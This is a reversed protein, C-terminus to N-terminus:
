CPIDPLRFPDGDSDVGENQELNVAQIQYLPDSDIQNRFLDVRQIILTGKRKDLIYSTSNFINALIWLGLVGFVGGFPYILWRSDEVIYLNQEVPNNLFAHIRNVMGAKSGSSYYDTLPYFGSSTEIQVRYACDDEDCNDEVRAGRLSGISQRFSGMVGSYTLTCAPADSNQRTCNLESVQGFVFISLAGILSFGLGMILIATRDHTLQIRLVEPNTQVLKM